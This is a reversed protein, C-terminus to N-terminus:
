FSVATLGVIIQLTHTQIQRYTYEVDGELDSPNSSVPGSAVLKPHIHNLSPCLDMLYGKRNM